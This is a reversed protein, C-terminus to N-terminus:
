KLQRWVQRSTPAAVAQKVMKISLLQTQGVMGNLSTSLQGGVSAAYSRTPNSQHFVTQSIYLASDRGESLVVGGRLSGGTVKISNQTLQDFVQSYGGTLADIGTIWVDLGALCPDTGPVISSFLLADVKGQLTFRVPPAIVREGVAVHTGTFELKWGKM